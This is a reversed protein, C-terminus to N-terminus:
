RFPFDKNKTGGVLPRFHVDGTEIFPDSSLTGNYTWTIQIIGDVEIEDTDLLGGAGGPASLQIESVVHCFQPYNTIDLTNVAVQLAIPPSFQAFPAATNRPAYSVALDLVFNGSIAATGGPPPGGLDTASGSNHSWHPHVYLDSGPVYRHPIHYRTDLKDNVAYQFGRVVAGAGNDQFNATSPGNAGGFDPLVLGIIDDWGWDNAVEDGVKMGEAGSPLVLGSPYIVTGNHNEHGM